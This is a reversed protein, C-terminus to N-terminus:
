HNFIFIGAEDSFCSDKVQYFFHIYNYNISGHNNERLM